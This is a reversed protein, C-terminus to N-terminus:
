ADGRSINDLLSTIKNCTLAIDQTILDYNCYLSYLKNLSEWYADLLSGRSLIDSSGNDIKLAVEPIKSKYCNITGEANIIEFLKHKASAYVIPISLCCFCDVIKETVYNWCHTNEVALMFISKQDSAVLKELHWDASLQRQATHNWGKGKVQSRPGVLSLCLESRYKALGICDQEIDCYEFSNELRKESYSSFVYPRNSLSAKFQSYGLDINRRLFYRYHALFRPETTTIYPMHWHNFIDTTFSNLNYIPTFAAGDLLIRSKFSKYDETWLTDWLPEESVVALITKPNKGIIMRLLNHADVFDKKFGTILVDADLPTDVYEFHEAFIKKYLLYAFPTRKSHPGFLYIKM